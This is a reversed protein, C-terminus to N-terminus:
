KLIVEIILNPGVASLVLNPYPLVLDPYPLVLNPYPLVLNLYPLVLDGHPLVLNPCPLVLNPCNFYKTVLNLLIQDLDYLFAFLLTEYKYFILIFIQPM